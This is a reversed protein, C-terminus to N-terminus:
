RHQRIEKFRELQEATLISRTNKALVYSQVETEVLSNGPDISAKRIATRNPAEALVLERLARGKAMVITM